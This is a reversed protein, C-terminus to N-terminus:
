EPVNELYVNDSKLIKQLEKVDVNKMTTKKNLALAACTGVGQALAMLHTQVRFSSLGEHTTSAARCAIALNPIPDNLAMGLPIHYSTGAELMLRNRDSYTTYGSGLPDHIDIMWVGHGVADPQKVAGLVMDQNLTKCGKIRRSERLGLCCGTQDLETNEMGPVHKKWYDIYEFVRERSEETLKTLEEEDLPNGAEPCMNWPCYHEGAGGGHIFARTNGANFPPFKGEKQLATMEDMIKNIQTEPIARMVTKNLGRLTFCMTMGQVRGDSTRGFEFPLGSKFAIDGDGTCDLVIKAAFFKRGMKTDCLVGKIINNELVPEGATLYCLTQVSAERLMKQWVIRIGEPSFAFM